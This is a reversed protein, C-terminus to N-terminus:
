TFYITDSGTKSNVSIRVGSVKMKSFFSSKWNRFLTNMKHKDFINSNRYHPPIFLNYVLYILIAAAILYIEEM